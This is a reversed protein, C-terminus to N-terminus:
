LDDARVYALPGSSPPHWSVEGSVKNFFYSAGGDPDELKNWALEKPVEWVSEGTEINFWYPQDHTEDKLERWATSYAPDTYSYEKTAQNYWRKNIHRELDAVMDAPLEVPTSTSSVGAAWNLWLEKGNEGRVKAWALAPPVSTVEQGTVSNIYKIPHGQVTIRQWACSPPPTWRAEGTSPSWYYTSGDKEEKLWSGPVSEFALPGKEDYLKLIESLEKGSAVARAATGSKDTADPNAGHALLLRAIGPLSEKFAVHLATVGTAPEHSKALAGQELLALVAAQDKSRVAEILPLRRASDPTNVDLGKVSLEELLTAMKKKKIAAVLKDTSPKSAVAILSIACITVILLQVRAM